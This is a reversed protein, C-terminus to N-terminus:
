MGDQRVLAHMRNQAWRRADTQEHQLSQLLRFEFNLTAYRKEIPDGEKFDDYAWTGYHRGAKRSSIKVSRTQMFNFAGDLVGTATRPSVLSATVAGKM